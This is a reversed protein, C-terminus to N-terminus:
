KNKYKQVIPLLTETFKIAKAVIDVPFRNEDKLTTLNLETSPEYGVLFGDENTIIFGEKKIISKHNSIQNRLKKVMGKKVPSDCTHYLSLYVEDETPQVISESYEEAIVLQFYLGTEKEVDWWLKDSDSLWWKIEEGKLNIEFGKDKLFDDEKLAEFIERKVWEQLRKKGLDFVEAAASLDEYNELVFERLGVKKKSM